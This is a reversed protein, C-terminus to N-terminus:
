LLELLATSNTFYSMGSHRFANSPFHGSMIGIVKSDLYNTDNLIISPMNGSSESRGNIGRQHLIVPSGSAGSFSLGNVLTINKSPIDPHEFFFGPLSALFAIRGVPIGSKTDWWFHSDEGAFGIFTAIDSIRLKELFDLDALDTVNISHAPQYEPDSLFASGDVIACDANESWRIADPLQPVDFFKLGNTFHITQKKPAIDTIRRLEIELKRLSFAKLSEHMKPDLNHRNTAFHHTRDSKKIWFGTGATVKVNGLDDVFTARTRNVNLLYYSVSEIIM